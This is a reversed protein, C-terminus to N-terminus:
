PAQEPVPAAPDLLGKSQLEQWLAAPVPQTLRHQAAAVEAPSALGVVASDVVPHALTFQLAAAALDTNHRACVQEIRAVRAIVEPRAPEYNYHVTGGGGVGTALIGSNFVGGAIVSAGHAICQPLFAHLAEQEMLTYRGALLFRDWRGITMADLCVQWENVGLGIADVAGSARLDDLARYGSDALDGFQRAADPGHTLTGIDHVLVINIRDLGLRGLSAEYSRMVGDYSYDFRVQHPAVRAFGYRDDLAGADGDAELLRGVKTSLVFSDKPKESLFAGLRRESLGLGYYPATDFLRMGADWAATLTAQAISESVPRYLNGLAAGGFGLRM